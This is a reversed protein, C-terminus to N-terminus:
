AYSTIASTSNLKQKPTLLFINYVLALLLAIATLQHIQALWEFGGWKYASIGSSTLVTFIGLATQLCALLLPMARAIRFANNGKIKMTAITWGIILLVLFYALGRHIFHTKLIENRQGTSNTMAQNQPNSAVKGASPLWEGNITPWTPAYPAAKFGAMMAGYFLQVLLVLLLLWTYKKLSPFTFLQDKRVVFKLTFWFTYCLLFLALIFHMALNAPRVYVADGTLGSLVMLWGVAGQMAGLIFLIVLPIVMDRTFRKQILFIIFPILFVVGILRGWLRHFWEWFFIFKFDSLTFGSNLQRYQETGQYKNFAGQWQEQNLPPLSGSGLNWETISLGSGTLRTIGGLLIQVVIMFIGIMLWRAVPKSSPQKQM